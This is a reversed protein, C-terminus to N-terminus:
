DHGRTNVSGFNGGVLLRTEENTSVKVKVVIL